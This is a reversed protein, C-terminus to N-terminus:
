NLRTTFGIKVTVKRMVGTPVNKIVIELESTALVNQEPDIKVVYGSLEGAREMDELARGAATELSAVTDGRLKGSAADVYLPSNLYPLLQNRIGRTAKDMTRVNEIYAYDSTLVDLTHSDNFYADAAGVHTRVFILRAANLLNLDGTSVEKVLEGTIFGPSTLGLPFKGVWAISENVSAASLCGLLNGICGYESFVGDGLLYVVAPELDCGILVSVNSRGAVSHASSKLGALTQTGKKPAVVISLPQHETELASAGTQYASLLTLGDTFVGVQRLRGGSYYQLAKVDEATVEGTLKIALYLTGADSQRFFERVHYSVANEAQAKSLATGTLTSLDDAGTESIGFDVELQEYYGIRAMYLSSTLDFASLDSAVIKGNMSMVLGSVPDESAAVRGMGGNQKKFVIDSLGM